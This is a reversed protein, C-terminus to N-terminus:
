EEESPASTNAGALLSRLQDLNFTSECRYEYSRVAMAPELVHAVTDGVFIALGNRPTAKYTKLKALVSALANTVADRTPQSKINSAQKVEDRLMAAVQSLRRSPPVYLTVLTAGNGRYAELEAVMTAASEVTSAPQSAPRGKRGRANTAAANRLNEKVAELTAAYSHGTLLAAYAEETLLAVRKHGAGYAHTETERNSMFLVAVTLRAVFAADERWATAFAEPSDLIGHLKMDAGDDSPDIGCASLVAARDAKKSVAGLFRAELFSHTLCRLLDDTLTLTGKARMVMREAQAAEMHARAREELSPGAQGDKGTARTADAKEAALRKAKLKAIIGKADDVDVSVRRGAVTVHPIANLAKAAKPDRYAGTSRRLEENQLDVVLGQDQLDAIVNSTIRWGLREKVGKRAHKWATEVFAAHDAFESVQLAYQLDWRRGVEVGLDEPLRTLKLRERVTSESVGSQEAVEKVTLGAQIAAEFHKAEQYPTADKRQHNLTFAGIAASREDVDKRVIAPVEGLRLRRCAEARHRGDTLVYGEPTRRVEVPMRVGQSQVSQLFGPWDEKEDYRLEAASPMNLIERLPIMQVDPRQTAPADIGLAKHLGVQVTAPSAQNTKSKKTM